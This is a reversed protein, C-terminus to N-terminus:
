AASRHRAAVSRLPPGHRCPSWTHRNAHGWSQKWRLILDIRIFEAHEGVAFAIFRCIRAAADLHYGLSRRITLYRDLETARTSM